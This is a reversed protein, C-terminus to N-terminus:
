LYLWLTYFELSGFSNLLSPQLPVPLSIALSRSKYVTLERGFGHFARFAVSLLEASWVCRCLHDDDSPNRDSLEVEKPVSGLGAVMDAEDAAELERVRALADTKM